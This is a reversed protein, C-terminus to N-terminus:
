IHLLENDDAIKQKIGEPIVKNMVETLGALTEPVRVVNLIDDGPNQANVDEAFQTNPIQEEPNNMNSIMLQKFVSSKNKFLRRNFKMKGINVDKYDQKLALQDKESRTSQESRSDGDDGHLSSLKQDLLRTLKNMYYFM